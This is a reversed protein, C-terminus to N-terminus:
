IYTRRFKFHTRYGDTENFEHISATVYYRGEFPAQVGEVDVNIGASIRPDGIFCFAEGQIFQNLAQGSAGSALLKAAADSPVTMGTLIEDTKPFGEAVQFGSKSGDMKTYSPAGTNSGKFIKKKQVDWGTVTVKNGGTLVTLTPNFRDLNEMYRLSVVASKDEQPRRFHFTKGVMLMEFGLQQIRKSLFEYNSLKFQIMSPLIFGSDEVKNALNVEKAMASAIQSDSKKEYKRLHTGFQLRYLGDYGRVTFTSADGFDPEVGTVQGNILVGPKEFGMAVEVDAGIPFAKMSISEGSNGDEDEGLAFSLEFLGATNLENEVRVSKLCSMQHLNLDVGNIGVIASPTFLTDISM